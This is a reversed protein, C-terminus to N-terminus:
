GREGRLAEKHAEWYNKGDKMLKREIMEHRLTHVKGAMSMNNDIYITKDPIKFGMAKGAMDNMGVYDRTTRDGVEKVRLGCSVCKRILGAYEEKYGM